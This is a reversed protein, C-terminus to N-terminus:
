MRGLDEIASVVMGTGVAIMLVDAAVRVYRYGPPPVGIQVVLAPPLDYFVVDRPLPRGVAWKRAQGPPMCGNHKKALGPPCHGGHFERGYYERIVVRHHDTFRHDGDRQGHREGGRDGDRDRHGKGKNEHKDGGGAWAPKDALVPGSALTGVVALALAYGTCLAIRKM